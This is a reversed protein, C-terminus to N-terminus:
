KTNASISASNQNQKGGNVNKTYFSTNGPKSSGDPNDVDDFHCLKGCKRCPSSIKTRALEAASMKQNRSRNKEDNRRIDNNCKGIINNVTPAPTRRSSSPGESQRIVSAISSYSVHKPYDSTSLPVWQATTNNKDELYINTYKQAKNSDYNKQYITPAKM